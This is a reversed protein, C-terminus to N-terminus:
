QHNLATVAQPTALPGLIERGPNGPLVRMIVFALLTAGFIAGISGILRLGIVRFMGSSGRTSAAPTSCTACATPLMHPIIHRRMIRSRTAGMAHAAEIFPLSRIRITESPLLRAYWPVSVLAIGIAATNLGVGLGVTVAMALILPPFALIADMVRMMVGDSFGGLTGAMLGILGGVIAGAVAVLSAVVLSIRAGSAFRAFVDRGLQDTGMPHAQSPSELSGLLDQTDPSHNWLIPAFIAFLIMLVIVAVPFALARDSLLARFDPGSDSPGLPVADDGGLTLSGSSMRRASGGTQNASVSYSINRADRLSARRLTACVASSALPATSSPDAQADRCAEPMLSGAISVHATAPPTM